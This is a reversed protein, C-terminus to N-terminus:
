RVCVMADADARLKTTDPFASCPWAPARNNPPLTCVQSERAARDKVAEIHAERLAAVRKAQATLDAALAEPSKPEANRM